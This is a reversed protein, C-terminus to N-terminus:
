YGIPHNLELVINEDLGLANAVAEKNMMARAVTKLGLATCILYINQSTYGADMAGYIEARQRFRSQDSVILLFVPANKMNPQAQALMGRVDEKTVETLTNEKANYLAAGDKTCVYVDIDQANVATPNTRRGDDRNVGCAAWLIQSLQQDSIPQDSFSRESRRQDLANMLTFDLNKDPAPLQKVSQANINLSMGAFMVVSLLLNRM